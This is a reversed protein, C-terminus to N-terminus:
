IANMYIGTYRIDSKDAPYTPIKTQWNLVKSFSFHQWKICNEDIVANMSSFKMLIVNRNGHQWGVVWQKGGMVWRHIDQKYGLWQRFWHHSGMQLIDQSFRNTFKLNSVHKRSFSKSLTTFWLLEPKLRKEKKKKEFCPPWPLIAAMKHAVNEFTNEQIFIKTNWNFNTQFKNQPTMM